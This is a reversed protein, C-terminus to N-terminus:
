STPPLTPNCDLTSFTFTLTVPSIEVIWWVRSMCLPIPVTPLSPVSLKMETMCAMLPRVWCAKERLIEQENKEMESGM